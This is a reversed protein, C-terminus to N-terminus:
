SGCSSGLALAPGRHVDHADRSGPARRHSLAGDVDGPNSADLLIDETSGVPILDTDQWVLDTNPVGDRQLSWFVSDTSTSRSSGHPADVDPRQSSSDEVMDGQAFHWNIDLNEKGTAQDRMIWRVEKATSVWNMDPMGDNWEVPAFYMTDVIMFSVVSNPLGQINVTLALERDPPKNFAARFADIDKTVAPAARLTAFEKGHDATTPDASVTVAGLTDVEAFYDGAYNNVAQVRNSVVFTGATPFRVEVMYRQAPAIVVSGVMQEREYRSLDAAILKIPAGGM